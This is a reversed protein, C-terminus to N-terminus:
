FKDTTRWISSLKSNLTFIDCSVLNGLEASNSSWFQDVSFGHSVSDPYIGYVKFEELSSKSKTGSSYFILGVCLLVRTLNELSSSSKSSSSQLFYGSFHFLIAVWKGPLVFNYIRLRHAVFCSGFQLCRLQVGSSSLIMMSFYLSSPPLHILIDVNKYFLAAM